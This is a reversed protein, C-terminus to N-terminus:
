KGAPVAKNIAEIIRERFEPTCEDLSAQLFSRAPIDVNRAHAAVPITVAGGKLQKGFAQKITRLHAQVAVAGKFGLEHVRAYEVNTGVTGVITGGTDTVNQTISRRLRGTRVHLVDDSLKEKTRILTKLAMLDVAKRLEARANPEIKGLQEILSGDGHISSSIM